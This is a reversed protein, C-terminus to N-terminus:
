ALPDIPLIPEARRAREWNALLEDRHTMAWEEVYHLATSDLDGAIVRTAISACYARTSSSRIPDSCFAQRVSRRAAACPESDGVQAFSV